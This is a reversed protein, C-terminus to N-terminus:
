SDVDLTRKYLLWGQLTIKLYKLVEKLAIWHSKRPKAMLKSLVSLGYALDLRTSIMSYMVSGVINAYPTEKIYEEEESTHLRQSSRLNYHAALPTLVLKCAMAHAMGYKILVKELYNRQSLFVQNQNRDWMIYIGTIKIAHGMDKMEFEGILKIKFSQKGVIRAFSLMDDLYLLLLIHYIGKSGSPYVCSGYSSRYFGITTM